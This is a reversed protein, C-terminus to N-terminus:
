AGLLQKHIDPRVETHDPGRQMILMEPFVNDMLPLTRSRIADAEQGPTFLLDTATDEVSKLKRYYRKHAEAYDNGASDAGSSALLQDRLERVDRLALAQGQGFNPDTAAAADGVLAVGAKYPHEVWIDAGDFTALPGSPTAGEFASAPLGIQISEEIYRPVDKEGSLRPSDPKKWVAFYARVNGNGSPFFLGHANLMPNMCHVATDAPINMNEFFLGSIQMRDPDRIVEFGCWSRAASTRGDCAAVFGAEIEESSGDSLEVMVRPPDGPEVGTVRVGRSVEAGAEEAARILTEQMRPHYYGLNPLGGPAEERLNRHALQAQGIYFDWWLIENACSSTLIDYIGLERAEEAGWGNLQEGRVRDKFETTAELVLVRSGKEAMAKALSAGALGGGITILDYRM